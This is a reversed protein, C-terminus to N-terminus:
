WYRRTSAQIQKREAQSSLEIGTKNRQNEMYSKHGPKIHKAVLGPLKEHIEQDLAEYKRHLSCQTHNPLVEILKINSFVSAAVQVVSDTKITGRNMLTLRQDMHIMLGGFIAADCLTATGRTKGSNYNRSASCATGYPPYRRSVLDDDVAMAIIFLVKKRISLLVDIIDHPGLYDQHELVIWEEDEAESGGALGPKRFLNVAQISPFSDQPSTNVSIEEIRLAFLNEDGLEWAVFLSKLTDESSLDGHAVVAWQVCWPRLTATLDYKNTFILLNYLEDLDLSHPIQSFRGHIINLVIQLPKVSDGPLKVIWEESKVNAPKSEKWPGFLMQKWVPSHRRLTSSCVRLRQPQSSESDEDGGVDLLLDGEADINIVNGHPLTSNEM